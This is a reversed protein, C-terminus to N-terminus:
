KHKEHAAEVWAQTDEDLDLSETAPGIEAIMRETRPPLESPVSNLPDTQADSDASEVDKGEPAGMEERLLARLHQEMINSLTTGRQKALREAREKLDEDLRLTLKSKM